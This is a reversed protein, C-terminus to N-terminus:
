LKILVEINNGEYENMFHEMAATLLLNKDSGTKTIFENWKIFTEENLVMSKKIQKQNNKLTITKIAM